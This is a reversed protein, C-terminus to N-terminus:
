WYLSESAGFMVLRKERPDADIRRLCRACIAMGNVDTLEVSAAGCGRCETIIEVVFRGSDHPYM